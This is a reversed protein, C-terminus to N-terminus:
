IADIEAFVHASGPAHEVRGPLVRDDAGGRTVLSLGASTPNLLIAPDEAPAWEALRSGLLLVITAGPALSSLAEPENSRSAVLLAAVRRAPGSEGEGRFVLGLHKAYVDMFALMTLAGDSAVFRQGERLVVVGISDDGVRSPVATASGDLDSGCTLSVAGTADDLRFALPEAAFSFRERSRWRADIEFDGFDLFVRPPELGLLRALRQGLVSEFSIPAQLGAEVDIERLAARVCQEALAASSHICRGSPDFQLQVIPRVRVRPSALPRRTFIYGFSVIAEKDEDAADGSLGTCRRVSGEKTILRFDISRPGTRERIASPWGEPLPGDQLVLRVDGESFRSEIEDVHKGLLDRTDLGMAEVEPNSDNPM